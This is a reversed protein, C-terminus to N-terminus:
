PQPEEPGWGVRFAPAVKAGIESISFSRDDPYFQRDALDISAPANSPSWTAGGDVSALVKGDAVAVGRGARVGIASASAPRQSPQAESGPKVVFAFASDGGFATVRLTRDADEEIASAIKLDDAGTVALTAVVSEAGSADVAVIRARQEKGEHETGREEGEEA